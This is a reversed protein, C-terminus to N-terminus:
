DDAADSTYLLCIRFIRGQEFSPSDTRVTESATRDVMCPTTARKRQQTLFHATYFRGRWTKTGELNTGLHASQGFGRSCYIRMEALYLHRQFAFTFLYLGGKGNGFSRSGFDDPGIAGALIEIRPTMLRFM